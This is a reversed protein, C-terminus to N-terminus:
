LVGSAYAPPPPSWANGPTAIISGSVQIGNWIGGVEM